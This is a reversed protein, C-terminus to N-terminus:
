ELILIYLVHRLTAGHEKSKCRMLLNEVSMFIQGLLLTRDSALRITNDYEDRITSKEIIATEFDKQKEAVTNNKKLVEDHTQKGKIALINRLSETEETIRQNNRTLNDNTSKLTKYRNLIDIIDPFEDSYRQVQELYLQYKKKRKLEKNMDDLIEKNRELEEKKEIIENERINIAKKEEEIRKLARTRKSENEQM